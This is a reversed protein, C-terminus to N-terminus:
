GKKQEIYAKLMKEFKLPDRESLKEAVTTIFQEWYMKQTFSKGELLPEMGVKLFEELLFSEFEQAVEKPKLNRKDFRNFFLSFFEVRDM